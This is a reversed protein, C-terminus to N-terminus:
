TCASVDWNSPLLPDSRALLALWPGGAVLGPTPGARPLTCTGGGGPAADLLVAIAAGGGAWSGAWGDAWGGIKRISDSQM